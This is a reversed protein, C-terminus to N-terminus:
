TIYVDITFKIKVNKLLYMRIFKGTELNKKHHNQSLKFWNKYSKIGTDERSIIFKNCRLVYKTNVIDKIRSTM